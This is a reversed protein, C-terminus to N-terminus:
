RVARNGPTGSPRNTATLLRAFRGEGNPALDAM